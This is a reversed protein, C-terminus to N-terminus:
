TFNLKPNVSWTINPIPRFYKCLHYKTMKYPAYWKCLKNFSILDFCLIGKVAKICIPM